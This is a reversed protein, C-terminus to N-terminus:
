VHPWMSEAQTEQGPADGARSATALTVTDNLMWALDARLIAPASIIILLLYWHCQGMNPDGEGEWYPTM